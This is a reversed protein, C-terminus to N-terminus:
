PSVGTQGASKEPRGPPSPFTDKGATQASEFLRAFRPSRTSVVPRTALYRALLEAKLENTIPRARREVNCPLRHAPHLYVLADPDKVGLRVLVSRPPDHDASDAGDLGCLHCTTGKVRLVHDVIKRVRRGAWESM